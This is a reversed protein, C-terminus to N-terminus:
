LSMEQIKFVEPEEKSLHYSALLQLAEVNDKNFELAKDLHQRCFMEADDAM